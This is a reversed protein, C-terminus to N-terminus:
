RGGRAGGASRSACPRMGLWPAARVVLMWVAAFVVCAFGVPVLYKWCLTMMQDVRIRPLTWRLWIVVIVLVLTKAAFIAM